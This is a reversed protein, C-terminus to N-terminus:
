NQARCSVLTANKHYCLTTKKKIINQHETKLLLLKILSTKSPPFRYSIFQQSEDRNKM